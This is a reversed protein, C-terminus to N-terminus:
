PRWTSYPVRARVRANGVGGQTLMNAGVNRTHSVMCLAYAESYSSQADQAKKEDGDFNAQFKNITAAQVLRQAPYPLDDLPISRIIRVELPKTGTFYAGGNTNYLKRGRLTLWHPNGNRETSLDLTDSPLVYEGDLNPIVKVWETNFWWGQAMQAYLEDQLASRANTVMPNTSNTISNIALEGMSNLCRNVISLENIIM